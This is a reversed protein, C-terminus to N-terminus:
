HNCTIADHNPIFPVDTTFCMITYLIKSSSRNLETELYRKCVKCVTKSDTNCLFLFNYVNWTFTGTLHTDTHTPPHVHILTVVLYCLYQVPSSVGASRQSNSSLRYHCLARSVDADRSDESVVVHGKISEGHLM